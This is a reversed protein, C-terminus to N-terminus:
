HTLNLYGAYERSIQNYDTDLTDALKLLEEKSLKTVDKEIKECIDSMPKVGMSLSGSKIDHAQFRITEVNGQEIADHLKKIKAPYDSIFIQVVERAVQPGYNSEISKISQVADFQNEM